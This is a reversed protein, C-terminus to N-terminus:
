DAKIHEEKIVKAWRTIQTQLYSLAEEPTSSVVDISLARLLERVDSFQTAKNIEGNLRAVVQKPMGAPGLIAYFTSADFGPLGAEAMTPIGPLVPSRQESTIAIARLRGSKIYPLVSLLGAFMMDVEGGILATLAPGSGKYPIHVTKINSMNDFLAGSLHIVSANGSSAYNFKGPRAKALAILEKLSTVPVNPHITLLLSSIGTLSVGSFDKIPDFPLKYLSVNIANSSTAMLLTYGDPASRAVIESGIVTAGGPRNDVIVPQGLTESLKQGILRAMIDGGGGAALPVVLRIPKWPYPQAAASTCILFLFACLVRCGHLRQDQDLM